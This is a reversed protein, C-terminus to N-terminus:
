QNDEKPEKLLAIEDNAVQLEHRLKALEIERNVLQNLADDRQKQLAALAADMQIKELDTM